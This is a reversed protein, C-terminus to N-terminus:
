SDAQVIEYHVGLKELYADVDDELSSSTAVVQLLLRNLRRAKRVLEKPLGIMVVEDEFPEAYIHTETLNANLPSGVGVALALRVLRNLAIQNVGQPLDGKVLIKESM